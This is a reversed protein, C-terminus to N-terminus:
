LQLRRTLIRGRSEAFPNPRDERKPIELEYGEEDCIRRLEIFADAITSRNKQETGQEKATAVNRNATKGM